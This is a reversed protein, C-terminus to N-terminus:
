QKQVRELRQCLAVAINELVRAAGAPHDTALNRMTRESLSLVRAEHTLVDVSHSRPQHLLYAIEGFVDGPHLVAIQRSGDNVALAGELLVFMNRASGGKAVFRDGQVCTIVASHALCARLEADDLGDLVSPALASLTTAVDDAYRGPDELFPSRVTVAGDLIAQVCRPMGPGAGQDVLSAVDPLFSVLPILYGGPSNINRSACPRQFRCYYSILHPECAGFVMRVGHEENLAHVASTLRCFLDNGRHDAAIMHREGLAMVEPPLEALLPTLGYQAIQRESFGAGGWTVRTTGVVEDGDVAYAIWSRADEPELLRRSVHDALDRAIGMEEVYVRYRFRAVADRDADTEAIRIDIM